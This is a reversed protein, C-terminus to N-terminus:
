ARGLHEARLSAMWTQWLPPGGAEFEAATAGLADSVPLLSRSWIGIQALV